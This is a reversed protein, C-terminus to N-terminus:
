NESNVESGKFKFARNKLQYMTLYVPILELLSMVLFIFKDDFLNLFLNREPSQIAVLTLLVANLISEISLLLLYAKSVEAQEFLTALMFPLAIVILIFHNFIQVLALIEFDSISEKHIIWAASGLFLTGLGGLIIVLKESITDFM